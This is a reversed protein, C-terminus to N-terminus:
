SGLTSMCNTLGELVEGECGGLGQIKPLIEDRVLLKHCGCVLLGTKELEQEGVATTSRSWTASAVEEKAPGATIVSLSPCIITSALLLASYFALQPGLSPSLTFIM